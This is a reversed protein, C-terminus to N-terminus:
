GGMKFSGKGVGLGGGQGEKRSQDGVYCKGVMQHIISKVRTILEQDSPGLSGLALIKKDKEATDM